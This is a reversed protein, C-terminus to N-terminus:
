KSFIFSLSASSYISFFLLLIIRLYDGLLHTSSIAGSNQNIAFPLLSSPVSATTQKGRRQCRTRCVRKRVGRPLFIRRAYSNTCYGCSCEEQVITMPVAAAPQSMGKLQTGDIELALFISHTCGAWEGAGGHYFTAWEGAGAMISYWVMSIELARSASRYRRKLDLLCFQRLIM